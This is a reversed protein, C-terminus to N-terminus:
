LSSMAAAVPIGRDMMAHVARKMATFGGSPLNLAQSDGLHTTFLTMISTALEGIAHASSETARGQRVAHWAVSGRAAGKAEKALKPPVHGGPALKGLSRPAAHTAM